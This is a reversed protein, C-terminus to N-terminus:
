AGLLERLRFAGVGSLAGLGIAVLAIWAGRNVGSDGTSARVPVTQTPTAAPTRADMAATAETTAAAPARPPEVAAPATATAAAAEVRGAETGVPGPAVEIAAL